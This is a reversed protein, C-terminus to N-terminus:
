HLPFYDFCMGESLMIIKTIFSIFTIKYFVYDILQTLQGIFSSPIRRLTLYIEYLTVFLCFRCLLESNWIRVMLQGTNEALEKAINYMSVSRRKWKSFFQSILSNFSDRTSLAHNDIGGLITKVINMDATNESQPKLFEKDAKWSRFVLKSRRASGIWNSWFKTTFITFEDGNVEQIEPNETSSEQNWLGM